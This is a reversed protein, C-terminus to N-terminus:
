KKMNQRRHKEDFFDLESIPLIVSTGINVLHAATRKFHRAILTFCVSVNADLHAHALRKIASECQLVIERELVTIEEALAEDSKIFASRTKEALAILKDDTHNFYERFLPKDLPKELLESVEYLNKAYDGLREADKVVSMLVLCMPVDVSPQLALHEVIRRRIDKELQNIQRDVTYIKDRLGETKNGEILQERVAKFMDEADVMMKEFERLVCSLFDKKQWFSLLNKIM